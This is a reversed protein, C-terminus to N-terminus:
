LVSLLVDVGHCWFEPRPHGNVCSSAIQDESNRRRKYSNKQGEGGEEEQLQEKTRRGRGGREWVGLVERVSKEM